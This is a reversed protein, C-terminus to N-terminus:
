MDKVQIRQAKKCWQPGMLAGEYSKLKEYLKNCEESKNTLAREFEQMAVNNEKVLRKLEKALGEGRKKEVNVQARLREIESKAENADAEAKERGDALASVKVLKTQMVGIETELQMKSKLGAMVQSELQVRLAEQREALAIQEQYKSNLRIIEDEKSKSVEKMESMEVSAQDLAAKGAALEAELSVMQQEQGRCKGCQEELESKLVSVENCVTALEDRVRDVEKEAVQRQESLIRGRQQSTELELSLAALRQESEKVMLVAKEHSTKQVMMQAYLESVNDSLM